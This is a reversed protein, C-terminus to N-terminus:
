RGGAAKRAELEEPTAQWTQRTWVNQATGRETHYIVECRCYEHRRYVDKPETGYEYTGALDGCWPCCGPAVLRTITTHLGLEARTRANETVYDDFFAESNNIIPEGIWVLAEDLTIDDETMKDILDNVRQKPFKPRVANLTIKKKKDQSKQIKSAADNVLNQNNELTPIVTRTAINYYLRGDPLNKETLVDRLAKSSDKGIRVAYEHGDEQTATGDRIRKTVRALTRDNETHIQFAKEISKLLDPVVDKM